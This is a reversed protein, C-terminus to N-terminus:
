FRVSGGMFVGFDEAAENLGLRVGTDLMANESLSYTLGLQAGAQYDFSGEGAVGIYEAFAGWQETLDFGLVATHVWETTYADSKEDHVLDAELMLGYDIGDSIGGSLPLILGGEWEGNSVESGSPIKVFPMLAMATPGGDNGWLNMKLRAEVDGFGSADERVGRTETVDQIFPSLVIQLDTGGSLGAKLNMEGYSWTEAKVGSIRDRSYDFFSTEMQFHGADVTIPSETTDPRDTSMERMEAGADTGIIALGSLVLVGAKLQNWIMQM